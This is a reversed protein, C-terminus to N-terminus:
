AAPQPIALVARPASGGHEDLNLLDAMRVLEPLSRARMKQMVRGRHVKITKEGTGLRAGIQKNLLGRVVLACVERERPTLAAYRMALESMEDRRLRALRDYELARRVAALLTEREVPKTLFDVAGALMARVTTPVDGHGSLFLAPMDCDAARLLHYLELGGLGPLWLDLILCGQGYVLPSRLLEGASEFSAAAIGEARLLRATATGVTVDDDVVLVTAVPHRTAFALTRASDRLM